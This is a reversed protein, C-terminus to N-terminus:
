YDRSEYRQRWERWRDLFIWLESGSRCLLRRGAGTLELGTGECRECQEMEEIAVWCTGDCVPCALKEDDILEYGSASCSSCTESLTVPMFGCGGCFMCVQELILSILLGGDSGSLELKSPSRIATPKPAPRSAITAPQPGSSPPPNFVDLSM